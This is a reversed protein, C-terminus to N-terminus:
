PCVKLLHGGGPGAVWIDHKIANFEFVMYFPNLFGNLMQFHKLIDNSFLKFNNNITKVILKRHDVWARNPKLMDANFLINQFM